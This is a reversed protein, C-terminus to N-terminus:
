VDCSKTHLYVAIISAIYNQRVSTPKICIYSIHYSLSKYTAHYMLCQPRPRPRMHKPRPRLIKKAEAEVECKRAEAEVTSRSRPRM